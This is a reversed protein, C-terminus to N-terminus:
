ADDIQSPTLAILFLCMAVVIVGMGVWFYWSSFNLFSFRASDVSEAADVVQRRHRNLLFCGILWGSICFVWIIGPYLIGALSLILWTTGLVGQGMVFGLWIFGTVGVGTRIRDGVERGIFVVLVLVGTALVAVSYCSAGLVGMFVESTQSPIM